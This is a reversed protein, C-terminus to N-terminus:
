IFGTEQNKIKLFFVSFGDLSVVLDNTNYIDEYIKKIHKNTRLYWMFDSQGFGSYVAM